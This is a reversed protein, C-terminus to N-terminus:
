LSGWGRWRAVGTGRGGGLETYFLNPIFLVTNFNPKFYTRYLFTCYLFTRYLILETDIVVTICEKGADNVGIVDHMVPTTSVPYYLDGVESTEIVGTFCTKAPTLSVPSAHM